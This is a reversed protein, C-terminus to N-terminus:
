VLAYGAGALGLDGQVRLADEPLISDEVFALQKPGVHGPGLLLRLPPALVARLITVTTPTEQETGVTFYKREYSHLIALLAKYTKLMSMHLDKVVSLRSSSDSTALWPEFYRPKIEKGPAISKTVKIGACHTLIEHMRTVAKDLDYEWLGLAPPGSMSQGFSTLIHRKVTIWEIDRPPVLYAGFAMGRHFTDSEPILRKAVYLNAELQEFEDLYEKRLVAEVLSPDKELDEAKHVVSTVLLKKMEPDEAFVAEAHDRINIQTSVSVVSPLKSSLVSTPLFLLVAARAFIDLTM